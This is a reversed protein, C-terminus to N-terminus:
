KWFIYCLLWLFPSHTPGLSLRSKQVVSTRNRSIIRGHNKHRQTRLRTAVCFETNRSYHTSTMQPPTRLIPFLPSTAEDKRDPHFLEAGVPRIKMFNSIKSNKSFRDRFNLDWEFRVPTVPVKCSFWCTNEIMDRWNIRLIFFIESLRQVFFWFVGKTNLLEKKKKFIKIYRPFINHLRVPRLHCYPAHANCASYRLSCVRVNLIHLVWQKEVVVITARFRRM